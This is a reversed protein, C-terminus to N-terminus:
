IEAAAGGSTSSTSHWGSSAEAEAPSRVEPVSATSASRSLARLDGGADPPVEKQMAQLHVNAEELERCREQLARLEVQLGEIQKQAEDYHHLLFWREWELLGWQEQQPRLRQVDLVRRRIERLGHTSIEMTGGSWIPVSGEKAMIAGEFLPLGAAARERYLPIRKERDERHLEDEEHKHILKMNQLVRVCAPCCNTKGESPKGCISCQYFPYCRSCIGSRNANHLIVPCYLCKRVSEM